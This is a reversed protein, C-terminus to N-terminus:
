PLPSEPQGQLSEMDEAGSSQGSFLKYELFVAGACVGLWLGLKLSAWRDESWEGRFWSIINPTLWFKISRGLEHLDGFIVKYSFYYVPVNVIILLVLLKEHAM